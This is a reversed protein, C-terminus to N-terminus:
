QDGQGPRLPVIFGLKTTPTENTTQATPTAQPPDGASAGTSGPTDVGAGRGSGETGGLPILSGPTPCGIGGEPIPPAPTPDGGGEPIPPVDTGGEPIPPAPPPCATTASAPTSAPTSAAPPSPATSPPPAPTCAQETVGPAEAAVVRSTKLAISSGPNGPLAPVPFDGPPNVSSRNTGPVAPSNMTECFPARSPCKRSSPSRAEKTAGYVTGPTNASSSQPSTENAEIRVERLVPDDVGGM